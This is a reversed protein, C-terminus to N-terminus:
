LAGKSRIFSGDDSHGMITPEGAPESSEEDKPGLALDILAWLRDPAM